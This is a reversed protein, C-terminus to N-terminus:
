RSRVSVEILEVVDRNNYSIEIARRINTKVAPKAPTLAQAM